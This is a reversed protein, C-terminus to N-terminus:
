SEKKNKITLSLATRWAKRKVSPIGFSFRSLVKYLAKAVFMDFTVTDNSNDSISDNSHDITVVNLGEYENIGKIKFDADSTYLTSLRDKAQKILNLRNGYQLSGTPCAKVCAPSAINFSICADCKYAKNRKLNKVDRHLVGVAYYPCVRECTGCGICRDQNIFVMGAYKSIAAEPCNKICEANTCHNCMRKVSKNSSNESVYTWTTATIRAPYSYNVPTGTDEAPLGHVSKCAVQCSKCGTCLSSDIYFAKQSV